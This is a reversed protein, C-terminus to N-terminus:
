LRWGSNQWRGSEWSRTVGKSGAGLPEAANRNFNGWQATATTRLSYSRYVKIKQNNVQRGKVYATQDQCGGNLDTILTGPNLTLDAERLEWKCDDFNYTIGRASAASAPLLAFMLAALVATIALKNKLRYM